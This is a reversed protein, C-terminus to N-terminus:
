VNKQAVILLHSGFQPLYDGLSMFLNKLSKPFWSKTIFPCLFNPSASVLIRLKASIIQSRLIPLTYLHLHGAGQSSYELYKPYGGLLLKLRNTISALNPTSLILLGGPKLIRYIETLFFDTDFLHEIVELAIVLDTSNSKPSLPEEFNDGKTIDLGRGKGKLKSVVLDLFTDDASGLEVIQPNEIQCYKLALALAKEQYIKNQFDLSKYGKYLTAQSLQHQNPSGM